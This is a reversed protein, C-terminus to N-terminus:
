NKIFTNESSYCNHLFYRLCPRRAKLKQPLNLTTDILVPPFYWQHTL